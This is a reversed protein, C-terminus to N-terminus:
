AEPPAEESCLLIRRSGGNELLWKRKACRARALAARKRFERGSALVGEDIMVRWEWAGKRRIVVIRVISSKDM